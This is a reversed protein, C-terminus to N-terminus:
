LFVMLDDPTLARPKECIIGTNAADSRLRVTVTILWIKHTKVCQLKGASVTYDSRNYHLSIFSISSREQSVYV